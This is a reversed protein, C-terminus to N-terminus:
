QVRIKSPHNTLPPQKVLWWDVSQWFWFSCSTETEEDERWWQNALFFFCLRERTLDLWSRCMGIGVFIRQDLSTAAVQQEMSCPHFSTPFSYPSLMYGLAIDQGRWFFNLTTLKVLYLNYGWHAVHSDAIRENCFISRCARKASRRISSFHAGGLCLLVECNADQFDPQWSWVWFFM